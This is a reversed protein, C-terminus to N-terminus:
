EGMAEGGVGWGGGAREVGVRGKGWGVSGWAM